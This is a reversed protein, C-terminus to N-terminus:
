ALRLWQKAFEKGKQLETDSVPQIGKCSSDSKLVAKFRKIENKDTIVVRELFSKTAM